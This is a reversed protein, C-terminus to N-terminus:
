AFIKKECNYGDETVYVSGSGFAYQDRWITSDTFEVSMNRLLCYYDEAWVVVSLAFLIIRKM